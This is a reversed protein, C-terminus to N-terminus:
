ERDEPAPQEDPTPTEGDGSNDGDDEPAADKDQDPKDQQPPAQKEAEAEAKKREEEAKKEAEAKKREEEAKRAAEEANKRDEEAKKEAEAKKREEEAKRAAEEANKRDEEAKKRQQKIEPPTLRGSILDYMNALLVDAPVAYTETRGGRAINLGVVKGTLDVLPGGCDTPQLASDHQLVTAFDDSRKSVGGGFTNQRNRTQSFPTSLKILIASIELEEDGRKVKLKVSDGPRYKKVTEILQERDPTEKGGVHTIVDDVKLGAKQAPSGPLVREIQAKDPVDKLVIGLYGRPPAIKRRPVSVVGVAVPTESITLSAVWQGVAPDQQAFEIAPLDTLEIKLMALDFSPLLGVFQAELERDDHLRCVIKGRLESAKTLIWGDPGVITGLVADKDDCKIRVACRAANAIVERFAAKVEDSDRGPLSREWSQSGVLRDWNDLFVDVPVHFNLTPSNGIRSNIGILKGELDFLPGGSDGGVLLCDTQILDEELKLVRGVRVVPPREEQYGMPHGVAVCWTGPKLDASRGKEVFPWKGEDDIKMLGADATKYRGLTTGVAESGDPFTFTVKLGPEEVVHGATMVYGDESVIIGSGRSARVQVGVVCPLVKAVVKRVQSEIERLQAANQPPSVQLSPNAVKEDAWTSPVQWALLAILIAVLGLLSPHRLTSTQSSMDM